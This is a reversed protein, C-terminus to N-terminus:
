CSWMMMSDHLPNSLCMMMSLRPMRLCCGLRQPYCRQSFPRIVPSEHPCPAGERVRACAEARGDGVGCSQLDSRGIRIAHSRERRSM